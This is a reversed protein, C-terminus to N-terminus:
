FKRPFDDQGSRCEEGLEPPDPEEDLEVVLRELADDRTAGHRIAEAVGLDQRDAVFEFSTKKM